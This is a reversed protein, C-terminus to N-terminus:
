TRWRVSLGSSQPELRRPVYERGRYARARSHLEAGRPHQADDGRREGQARWRSRRGSVASKIEIEVDLAKRIVGIPFANLLISQVVREVDPEAEVVGKVLVLAPDLERLGPEVLVRPAVRRLDRPQTVLVLEALAPPEAAGHEPDL